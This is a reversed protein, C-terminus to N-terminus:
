SQALGYFSDLARITRDKLYKKLRKVIRLSSPLADASFVALWTPEISHRKFEENVTATRMAKVLSKNQAVGILLNRQNQTGIPSAHYLVRLDDINKHWASQLDTDKNGLRVSLALAHTYKPVMDVSRLERVTRRILNAEIKRAYKSGDYFAISPDMIRGNLCLMVEEVSKPNTVWEDELWKM